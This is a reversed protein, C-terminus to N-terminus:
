YSRWRGAEKRETYCCNGIVSLENGESFYCGSGAAWLWCSGWCMLGGLCSGTPTMSYMKMIGFWLVFPEVYTLIALWFANERAQSPDQFTINIRM